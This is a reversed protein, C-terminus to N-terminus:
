HQNVTLLRRMENGAALWLNCPANEQLWGDSRLHVRPSRCAVARVRNPDLRSSAFRRGENSGVNAPDTVVGDCSFSPLLRM